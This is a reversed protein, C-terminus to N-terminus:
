HTKLHIRISLWLISLSISYKAFVVSGNLEMTNDIRQRYKVYNEVKTCDESM